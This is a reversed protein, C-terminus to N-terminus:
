EPLRDQPVAEQVHKEWTVAPVWEEKAHGHREWTVETEARVNM